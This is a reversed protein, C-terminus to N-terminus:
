TVPVYVAIPSGDDGNTVLVTAGSADVETLWLWAYAGPASGASALFATATMWVPVGSAGTVAVYAGLAAGPPYALWAVFGLADVYPVAGAGIGDPPRLNSTLRRGGRM